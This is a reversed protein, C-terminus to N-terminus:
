VLISRFKPLLFHNATFGVLIASAFSALTGILVYETVKIEGANKLEGFRFISKAALLFGIGEINGTFIFTLILIRELYGIWLGAKPLSSDSKNEVPAWRRIFLDLLISSPKLVLLYSVLVTWFGPNMWWEALNECITNGDQELYLWLGVIILIHVCQDIIFTVANDKMYATKIYDMLCHTLFISVPIIWTKWEAVILYAAGAHVLSHLLTYNFGPIGGKKKGKCIKDTQLIFDALIHAAFLKLLIIINM